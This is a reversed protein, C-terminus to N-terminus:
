IKPPSCGSLLRTQAALLEDLNVSGDQNADLACAIVGSSGRAANVGSVLEDVFVTADGDCDGACSTQDRFSTATLQFLGQGSVHAILVHWIGPAPSAVECFGFPTSGEDDCLFDTRSPPAAPRVYLDFDNDNGEEDFIQGNLAVRLTTTSPPTAFEFRAESTAPDLKGTRAFVTTGITEVTPLDSCIRKSLDEGVANSIWEHSVFVDTAFGSDPPSCDDSEGGSISGAVVMDNGLNAFLPGGSDGVCSSAGAGKFQWCVQGDNPLDGVCEATTVKGTRKIGNDISAGGTTGFGVLTASTGVAPRAVANIMSPTIGTPADDLTVVAVDGREAFTFRPDIQIKTIAFFGAHQLFVLFSSPDVPGHALCTSADEVGDPCVCHAATLFTRCGILTGTCLGHVSSGNGDEFDLLAGVSPFAATSAGSVLRPVRAARGEPMDALATLCTLHIAAAAIAWTPIHHVTAM